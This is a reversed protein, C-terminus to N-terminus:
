PGSRPFAAIVNPRTLAYIVYGNLGLSIVSSFAGRFLSVLALVAGIGALVIAVTRAWEKLQRLAVGVYIQAAGIVILVFALFAFFGGAIALLIFGGLIGFAGGIFLLIAAINVEGPIQRQGYCGPPGAPPPPPPANYTM